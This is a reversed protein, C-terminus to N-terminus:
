LGGKISISKEIMFAVDFPAIVLLLTNV